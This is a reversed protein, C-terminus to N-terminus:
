FIMNYKKYLEKRQNRFKQVNEMEVQKKHQQHQKYALWISLLFLCSCMNIIFVGLYLSTNTFTDSNITFTNNKYYDNNADVIILPKEAFVNLVNDFDPTAWKLGVHKKNSHKFNFHNRNYNIPDIEDYYQVHNKNITLKQGVRYLYFTLTPPETKEAKNANFKPNLANIIYLQDIDKCPVRKAISHIINQTNMYGHFIQENVSYLIPLDKSCTLGNDSYEDHILIAVQDIPLCNPLFVQRKKSFVIYPVHSFDYIRVYENELMSIININIKWANCMQYDTYTKLLNFAINFQKDNLQNNLQEFLPQNSTQNKFPEQQQQQQKNNYNQFKKEILIKEKFNNDQDNKVWQIFRNSKTLLINEKTKYIKFHFNLHTGIHRRLGIRM